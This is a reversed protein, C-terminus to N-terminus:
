GTVEPVVGLHLFFTALVAAFVTVAILLGAVFLLRFLNSDFRLHMFWLAVLSFKLFAFVILAPVLVPRAAEIYYIAVEFATIVALVIAITVYRRPTPHHLLEEEESSEVFQSM